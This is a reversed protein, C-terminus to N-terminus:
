EQVFIVFRTSKRWTKWGTGSLNLAQGSTLTKRGASWCSLMGSFRSIWNSPIFIHSYYIVRKSHLFNAKYYKTKALGWLLYNRSKCSLTISKPWGTQLRRGMYFSHFSLLGDRWKCSVTWMYKKTVELGATLSQGLFYSLVRAKCSRMYTSHKQPNKHEQKREGAGSYCLLKDRSKCSMTWTNHNPCGTTGSCYSPLKEAM